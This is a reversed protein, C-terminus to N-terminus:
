LYAVAFVSACGEEEEEGGEQLTVETLGVEKPTLFQWCTGVGGM